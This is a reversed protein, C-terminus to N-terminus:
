PETPAPAPAPNTTRRAQREEVERQHQIAEDQKRQFAERNAARQEPTLPAPAAAPAKPRAITQQREFEARDAAQKEALKRTQADADASERARRELYEEDRLRRVLDNAELEVDRAAWTARRQERRIEDVCPTVFFRSQCALERDYGAWEVAIRAQTADDRAREATPEDHISGAPYRESLRTAIQRPSDGLSAPAEACAGLGATAALLAIARLASRLRFTPAVVPAPLPM